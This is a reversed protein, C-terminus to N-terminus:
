PKSKRSMLSLEPCRKQRYPRLRVYRAASPASVRLTRCLTPIGDATLKGGAEVDSERGPYLVDPAVDVNMDGMVDCGFDGPVMQLFRSAFKLASQGAAIQLFTERQFMELKEDSSGEEFGDFILSIKQEIGGTSRNPIPRFRCM